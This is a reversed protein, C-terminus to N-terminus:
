STGLVSRAQDAPSQPQVGAPSAPAPPVDRAGLGGGSPPTTQDSVQTQAPQANPDVNVAQVANPTAGAPEAATPDHLRFIGLHDEGFQTVDALPKVEGSETLAKENGMYIANKNEKGMIVDGTKLDSGLVREGIDQGMPPVDFGARRAAEYVSMNQGSLLNKAMDAHKQTEFDVKNGKVDLTYTAPHATATSKATGGLNTPGTNNQAPTPIQGPGPKVPPEDKNNKDKKEDDQHDKDNKRKRDELDKLAKEMPDGAKLPGQGAGPATPLPGIGGQGPSPAGFQPVSPIQPTQLGGASPRNAALLSALDFPQDPKVRSWGGSGGEGASVGGSTHSIPQNTNPPATQASRQTSISTPAGSSPVTPAHVGEMVTDLASIARKVGALHDAVERSSDSMNGENVTNATFPILGSTSNNIERRNKLNVQRLALYADNAKAAAGLAQGILTKGRNEAIDRLTTVMGDANQASKAVLPDEQHAEYAQALEDSLDGLRKLAAQTKGTTQDFSSMTEVRPADCPWVDDPDFGFTIENSKRMGADMKRISDDRNGDHCLPLFYTDPPSPPANIDPAQSGGGITRAIFNNVDKRSGTDFCWLLLSVTPGIGPALRAIGLGLRAAIRSGARAGSRAAAVTARSALEKGTAKSLAKRGEKEAAEGSSKGSFQDLIGGGQNETRSLTKNSWDRIQGPWTSEQFKRLAVAGAVASVPFEAAGALESTPTSPASRVPSPPTLHSDDPQPPPASQPKDPTTVPNPM